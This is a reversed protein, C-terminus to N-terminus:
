PKVDPLLESTHGLDKQPVFYFTDKNVRHLERLLKDPSLSQYHMKWLVSGDAASIKRYRRELIDKFIRDLEKNKKQSKQSLMYERMRQSYFLVMLLANFWCTGTLKRFSRFM